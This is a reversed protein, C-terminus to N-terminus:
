SKINQIEEKLSSVKHRLDIISPKSQSDARYMIKKMSFPKIIPQPKPKDTNLIINKLELLFRKRAEEDYIHQIVDFLAEKSDNSLVKLVIAIKAQNATIRNIISISIKMM